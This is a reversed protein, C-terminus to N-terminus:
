KRYHWQWSGSRFSKQTDLDYYAVEPHEKCYYATRGLNPLHEEQILHKYSSEVEVTISHARRSRHARKKSVTTINKETDESRKHGNGDQQSPDDV